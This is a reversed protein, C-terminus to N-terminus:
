LFVFDALWSSRVMSSVPYFERVDHISIATATGVWRPVPVTEFQLLDLKNRRTARRVDFGTMTMRLLRSREPVVCVTTNDRDPVNKALRESVFLTVHVAPNTCIAEVLSLLRAFSGSGPGTTHPLWFGLRM